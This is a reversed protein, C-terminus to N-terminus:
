VLEAVARAPYRSSARARTARGTAAAAVDALEDLRSLSPRTRRCPAARGVAVVLPPSLPLLRRRRVGAPRRRDVPLTGFTRDPRRCLVPMRAPSAPCCPWGSRVVSRFPPTSCARFGARLGIPSAASMAMGTLAPFGLGAGLGTLVMAPAVDILYSGDVPVRTFLFLGATLLALSVLLTRYAGIWETVPRRVRLSMVGMVITAPLFALGVRLPGYGRVDQLYLAGLFFSGFM